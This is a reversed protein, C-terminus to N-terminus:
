GKYKIKVTCSGSFVMYSSKNYASQVGFGKVNGLKLAELVASDAITITKQEGVALSVSKSWGLIYQPAGSPRSTHTHM